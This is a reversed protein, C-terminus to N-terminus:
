RGHELHLRPVTAADIRHRDSGGTQRAPRGLVHPNGRGFAVHGGTDRNIDLKDADPFQQPDHNASGIVMTVISGKPILVGGLEVDEVAVRFTARQVPGEHRLVEEIASGIMNPDNLLLDRVDRHCCLQLLSAGILGVTTEHGAILLMISMGLLEEDSLRDQEDHAVVAGPPVSSRSTRAPEAERSSM